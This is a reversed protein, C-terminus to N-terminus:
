IAKYPCRIPGIKFHLKSPLMLIISQYHKKCNLATGSPLLILFGQKLLSFMYPTISRLVHLLLIPLMHTLTITHKNSTQM